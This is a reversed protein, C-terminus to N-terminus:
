EKKAGSIPAPQTLLANLKALVERSDNATEIMKGAYEKAQSEPIGKVGIVVAQRLSEVLTDYRYLMNGLQDAGEKLAEALRTTEALRFDAIMQCIEEAPEFGQRAPNHLAIFPRVLKTALQRDSALITRVREPSDPTTQNPTPMPTSAPKRQPYEKDMCFDPAIM